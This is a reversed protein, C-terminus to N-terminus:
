AAALHKRWNNGTSSSAHFRDATRHARSGIRIRRSLETPYLAQGM